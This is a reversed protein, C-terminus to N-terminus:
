KEARLVGGPENCDGWRRPVSAGDIGEPDRKRRLQGVHEVEDTLDEGGGVPDAKDPGFPGAQERGAVEGPLAQQIEAGSGLLRAFAEAIQHAVVASAVLKQLLVM